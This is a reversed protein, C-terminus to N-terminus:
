FNLDLLFKTILGLNFLLSIVAYINEFNKRIFLYFIGSILLYLISLVLVGGAVYPINEISFGDITLTALFSTILSTYYGLNNTFVFNTKNLLKAKKLENADLYIYDWANLGNVNLKMLGYYLFISVFSVLSQSLSIEELSYNIFFSFLSVILIGWFGIKKWKIISYSFFVSAISLAPLMMFQATYKLFMPNKQVIFNLYIFCLILNLFISFAIFISLAIHRERLEYSTKEEYDNTEDLIKNASNEKIKKQNSNTDKLINDSLKNVIAIPAGCGICQNSLDSIRKGCEICSILAM